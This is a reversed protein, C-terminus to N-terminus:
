LSKRYYLPLVLHRYVFAPFAFVVFLSIFVAYFEWDQSHVSGLSKQEFGFSFVICLLLFVLWEILRMWVRKVGGAPMFVIFFRESIWPLNAAVFSIILILLASATM